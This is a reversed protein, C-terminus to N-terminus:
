QDDPSLMFLTHVNLQFYTKWPQYHIARSYAFLRAELETKIAPFVRAHRQGDPGFLWGYYLGDRILARKLVRRIGKYDVNIANIDIPDPLSLAREIQGLWQRVQDAYGTLIGLGKEVSQPVWREVEERSFRESMYKEMDSTYNPDSELRQAKQIDTRVFELATRCATLEARVHEDERRM